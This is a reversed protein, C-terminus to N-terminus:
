SVTDPIARCRGVRQPEARAGVQVLTDARMHIGCLPQEGEEVYDITSLHQVRSCVVSSQRRLQPRQMPSPLTSTASPVGSVSEQPVVPEAAQNLEICYEILSSM